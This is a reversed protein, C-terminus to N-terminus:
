EPQGVPEGDGSDPMRLGGIELRRRKQEWEDRYIALFVLDWYQDDFYEHDRLRGEEHAIKGIISRFATLNFELVEGYLKRFGFVSFLYDLFLYFAELPWATGFLQPAIAGAVRAHQHRFNAGYCAVVGLRHGQERDCIMFQSLVDNWLQTSYQAPSPTAGRMRYFPALESGVELAFLFDTDSAQV